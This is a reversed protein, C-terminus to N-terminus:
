WTTPMFFSSAGSMETALSYNWEEADDRAFAPVWNNEKRKARQIGANAPIVSAGTGPFCNTAFEANHERRQVGALRVEVVFGHRVVAEAMQEADGGPALAV